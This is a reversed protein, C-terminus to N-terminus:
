PTDRWGEPGTRGSEDWRRSSKWELHKKDVYNVVKSLQKGFMNVALVLESLQLFFLRALRNKQFFKLLDNDEFFFFCHFESGLINAEFFLANMVDGVILTDYSVIRLNGSVVVDM